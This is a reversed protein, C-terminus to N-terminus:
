KTEKVPKDNVLEINIGAKKLSLYESKEIEGTDGVEFTKTGYHLKENLKVKVLEM